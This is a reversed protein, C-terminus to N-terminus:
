RMVWDVFRHLVQRAENTPRLSSIMADVDRGEDKLVPALRQMYATMIREDFEPHFQVGWACSGYRFAQNAEHASAARVTAGYPLRTVSHRHTLHAMFRPPLGGFLPDGKASANLTVELTGMERGLPHYDVSGGLAHALLQHGYCVGLVPKDAQVWHGLWGAASESWPARETVM